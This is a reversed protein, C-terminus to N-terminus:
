TTRLVHEPLVELAEGSRGRRTGSSTCGLSSAQVSMIGVVVFVIGVEGAAVHLRVRQAELDDELAAM